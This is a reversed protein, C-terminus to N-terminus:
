QKGKCVYKLALQIESANMSTKPAMSNMNGKWQSPTYDEPLYFGHCSGCNNIYLARGDQLEQLTANATVDATTPVYLSGSGATDKKCGTFSLSAMMAIVLVYCLKRIKM